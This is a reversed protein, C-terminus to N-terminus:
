IDQNKRPLTFHFASGKGPKSEVWITGGHKEIFDKCIILGLGSSPEGETGKRSTEGDIRFLKDLLGKDMGIGTDRISIEVSRDSVVAAINVKGGKPTFKVANFLLNRIVTEIMHIDAVIELDLPIHSNIAIDKERASDLVLEISEKIKPNLQFSEAHFGTLNRQMRSWELLNELLGLINGASSKLSFAIRQIEPLSLSPLDEVLMRTFGLFGNFPSRLDHAIISFFRDKEANLTLLEENKLRIEAEAKKLNTVDMGVGMIYNRDSAELKVGTLIFPIPQGQKTFLTAEIRVRGKQMVEEMAKLVPEKSEPRQWDLISKDKLEGPGFGLFSEHNKNYRVMRMDPYSYLYFIGPLSDLVSETFLQEQRLAVEMQKRETIDNISTLFYSENDLNIVQGSFLGTVLEGNKKRFVIETADVKRGASLSSIMRGREEPDAWLNLGISSDAMAEERSFGTVRTFADNTEVFKGDQARTITIAYPSTQFAVSFKEEQAKVDALLRRNVMLVLSITLSLNLVIYGTIALANVAGSKFFDGSQEPFAINMMMRAFSFAAYVACVLGTFRTIRRLGHHVKLLLLWSCQLSYIMLMASLAIDRAPLSPHVAVFYASTLMFVALFVFNHIQRGTKGTFREMGMLLLIFGALLLTNSLTMSIIDPVQGRLILLSPGIVQLALAALWFPMGAFRGRDQAWTLAVVGVNIVNTLLYLIM